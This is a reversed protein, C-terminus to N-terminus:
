ELFLNMAYGPFVLGTKTRKTRVGREEMNSSFYYRPIADDVKATPCWELYNQYVQEWGIQSVGDKVLRERIFISLKDNSDRYEQVAQGMVEPMEPLGTALYMYAGEVLWNFIGDVEKELVDRLNKEQDQELFTKRFPIVKVREWMALSADKIAPLHNCALWITHTPHFEFGESHLKTGVLKDGGTLRKILSEKLRSSDFTESAIVFRQGKLKGVAELERVNTKDKQLFTEFETAQAYSGLVHGVTELLVGKGNRGTGYCLFFCHETTLGLMSYGLALQVYDILKQDKDFIEDLFQIWRPCYAKANYSANVQRLHLQEPSHPLIKKTALDLVGNRCNILRPDADFEDISVGMFSAAIEVMNRQCTKSQSNKAWTIQENTPREKQESLEMFLNRVVPETLKFIDAYHWGDTYYVWKKQEKIYRAKEKHWDKFRDKNGLDDFEYKLKMM